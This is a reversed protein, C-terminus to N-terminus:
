SARAHRLRARLVAAFRAPDFDTSAVLASLRGVSGAHLREAVRQLEVRRGHGPGDSLSLAVAALEASSVGAFPQWAREDFVALQQECFDLVAEEADRKVNWSIRSPATDTSGAIM